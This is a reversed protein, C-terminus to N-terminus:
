RRKLVAPGSAGVNVRERLDKGVKFFALRKAKVHISEGSRPNRGVYEGYSRVSFSGFGRIEISEGRQLAEAMCDFVRRVLLDARGSPLKARAAVVGILAARTKAVSAQRGVAEAEEALAGRRAGIGSRGSSM